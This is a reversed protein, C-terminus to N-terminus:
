SKKITRKRKFLAKYVKYSDKFTHFHSHKNKEIYITEIVIEHIDINNKISDVLVNMEYEFRDGDINIMFDMLKNTFARLGTQTDYINKGTLKRFVFQTISNGIKSRLPVNDGRLRKGLVFSEKNSIVYDLLNMADDEKHQGDSDMTVVAYENYNDVIYKFGEKLTYGKGKNVDRSSIVKTAYKSAENFIDKYLPGSGDDVVIVDIDIVALRKLLEILHEDPEYAPILAIRNM